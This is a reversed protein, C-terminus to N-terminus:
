FNSVKKCTVLLLSIAMQLAVLFEVLVGHESLIMHQFDEPRPPIVPPRPHIWFCLVLVLFLELARLLSSALSSMLQSSTREVGEEKLHEAVLVDDKSANLVRNAISYM